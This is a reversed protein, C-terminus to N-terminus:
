RDCSGRRQELAPPLSAASSSAYRGRVIACHRLECRSPGEEGELHDIVQEVDQSRLFSDAFRRSRKRAPMWRTGTTSPTRACRRVASADKLRCGSTLKRAKSRFVVLARARSVASIRFYDAGSALGQRRALDRIEREYRRGLEFRTAMGRRGPLTSRRCIGALELHQRM